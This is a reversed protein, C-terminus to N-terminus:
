CHFNKQEGTYVKLLVAEAAISFFASGLQQDDTENSFIEDIHILTRALNIAAGNSTTFKTSLVNPDSGLGQGYCNSDQSGM